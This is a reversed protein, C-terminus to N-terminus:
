GTGNINMNLGLQIIDFKMMMHNEYSVWFVRSALDEGSCVPGPLGHNRPTVNMRCVDVAEHIM